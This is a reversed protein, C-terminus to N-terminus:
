KNKEPISSDVAESLRSALLSASLEKDGSDLTSVKGRSSTIRCTVKKTEDNSSRAYAAAGYAEIGGDYPLVICHLTSFEPVWSRFHPKLQEKM